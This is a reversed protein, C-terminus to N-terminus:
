LNVGQHRVKSSIITRLELVLRLFAMKKKLEVMFHTPIVFVRRKRAQEDDDSISRRFKTVSM